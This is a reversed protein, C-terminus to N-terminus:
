VACGSSGDLVNSVWSATTVTLPTGSEDYKSPNKVFVIEKFALLPLCTHIM